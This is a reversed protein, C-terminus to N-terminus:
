FSGVKFCVLDVLVEVLVIKLCEIKGFMIKVEM